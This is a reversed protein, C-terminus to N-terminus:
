DFSKANYAAVVEEIAQQLQKGQPDRYHWVLQNEMFSVGKGKITKAIIVKPLGNPNMKFAKRLQDHNHGDNVEVVTWGFAQWKKAMPEMNIVDDTRGMAQMGNADVIVTLNALKYQHALMIAEWVSGENCEGDGIICYVNYPKSRLKGNLAMGCAIGIGHGLSGTTVEVGPIHKHSIHGSFKGGNNGYTKLEELPFFGIEALVAYIVVGNHGKSLIVRDRKDNKVNNIDYKIIDNYLVSVIDCCSLIGGIHSAHAHSVMKLAHIRLRYALEESDMYNECEM